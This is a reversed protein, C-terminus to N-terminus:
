CLQSALCTGYNCLLAFNVTWHMIKFDAITLISM